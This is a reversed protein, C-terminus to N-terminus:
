KGEPWQRDGHLAKLFLRFSHTIGSYWTTKDRDESYMAEVHLKENSSLVAEAWKELEDLERLAAAGLQMANNVAKPEYERFNDLINAAESRKM